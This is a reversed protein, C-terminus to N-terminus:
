KFMNQPTFDLKWKNRTLEEFSYTGLEITRNTGQISVQYFNTKKLKKVSAVIMCVSVYGYETSAAPKVSGKVVAWSVKSAGMVTNKANKVLVTGQASNIPFGSGSYRCYKGQEAEQQTSGLELNLYDGYGYDPLSFSVKLTYTKASHAVPVSGLTLSLALAVCTLYRNSGISM